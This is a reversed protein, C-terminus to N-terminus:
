PSANFDLVAYFEALPLSYIDGSLLTWAGVGTGPNSQPTLPYMTTGPPVTQSINLTYQGKGGMMGSGPVFGTIITRPDVGGGGLAYGVALQSAGIASVTLINGSIRGVFPQLPMAGVDLFHSPAITHPFSMIHQLFNNYANRFRENLLYGYLLGGIKYYYSADIGLKNFVSIIPPNIEYGGEYYILGINRSTTKSWDTAVSSMRTWMYDDSALAHQYDINAWDLATTMKEPDGSAYDDAATLLGIASYSPVANLGITRSNLRAVSGGGGYTYPSLNSSISTSGNSSYTKSIEFSDTGNCGVNTVTTWAGSISSLGTSSPLTLQVRDGNRYGNATATICGPNKTQINTINKASDLSPISYNGILSQTYSSLYGSLNRTLGLGTTYMAASVLNIFDGPRQGVATYDKAIPNGTGGPRLTITANTQNSIVSKTLQVTGNTYYPPNISNHTSFEINTGGAIGRGSAMMGNYVGKGSEISLIKLDRGSTTGHIVVTDTGTTYRGGSDMTLDQGKLRNMWFNYNDIVFGAMIPQFRDDGAPWVAKIAAMIQRIRLDCYDEWEGGPPFGLALGKAVCWQYQPYSGSFNFNENSFEFYAKLGPKLNAAIEKAMAQADSDGFYCPIQFWCDTGLANCLDIQVFTPTSPTLPYSGAGANSHAVSWENLDADYIFTVLTNAALWNSGYVTNSSKNWLTTAIEVDGTGGVNLTPAAGVNANAVFAQITSGQVLGEWNAPAAVCYHNGAACGGAADYSLTGAWTGDLYYRGSIYSRATRSWEFRFRSRNSNDAHNWGMMRLVRPNLRREFALFDPDFNDTMTLCIAADTASGGLGSGVRDSRCLAMNSINQITTSSRPSNSDLFTIAFGNSASVGATFEVYCDTGTLNWVNSRIGVVPSEGNACGQIGTTETGANQTPGITVGAVRGKGFQGKWVLYWSGHYQDRSPTTFTCRLAAPPSKTLYDDSNLYQPYPFYTTGGTSYNGCMKMYNIFPYLSSGGPGGLNLQIKGRGHGGGFPAVQADAPMLVLFLFVAALRFAM